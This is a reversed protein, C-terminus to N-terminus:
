DKIPRSALATMNEEETTVHRMREYNAVWGDSRIIVFVCVCVCVCLFFSMTWM